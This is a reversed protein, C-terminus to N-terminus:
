NLLLSKSYITVWSFLTSIRFLLFSRTIWSLAVSCSSSDMHSSSSENIRLSNWSTGELVHTMCRRSHHFLTWWHRAMVPGISAWSSLFDVFFQRLAQFLYFYSLTTWVNLYNLVVGHLRIPPTSTYAWTKKVEANTPPSHDNERGPRKIVPSLAGPVWQIPPLTPGVAPRTSM